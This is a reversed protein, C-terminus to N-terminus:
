FRRKMKPLLDQTKGSLSALHPTLSLFLLGRSRPQFQPEHKLKNSKTQLATHIHRRLRAEGTQTEGTINGILSEVNSEDAVSLFCLFGNIIM